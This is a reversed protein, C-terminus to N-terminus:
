SEKGRHFIFLCFVLFFFTRSDMHLVSIYYEEPNADPVRFRRLAAELLESVIMDKTIAVTKFTAKLDVNGAYIRLVSIPEINEEAIDPTPIIMETNDTESPSQTGKRTDKKHFIRRFAKGIEM